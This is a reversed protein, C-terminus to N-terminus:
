MTKVLNMQNIIDAHSTTIYTPTHDPTTGDLELWCDLAWHDDKKNFPDLCLQANATPFHVLRVVYYAPLDDTIGTIGYLRNNFLDLARDSLSEKLRPNHYRLVITNDVIKPYVKRYTKSLEMLLLDDKSNIRNDANLIEQQSPYLWEIKQPAIWKGKENLYSYALDVKVEYPEPISDGKDFKTKEKISTEVWFLYLKGLHIITSVYPANIALEIKEWPTWEREPIWKRYYFQPPDQQTCGFFYYIDSEAHYYSGAIRLRALEAFQSVYKRYAAEASEKTIKQQLLEDELEKFIPTKNDRLDPEIYNEPYLFVKRNAEWVRYNKRWEWELKFGDLDKVEDLVVLKDSTSQELNTLIRHVYLQLSSIASVVRSTRFCGSMEVDLLFFAYIDNWDKFKLEQQRAIVYDCLADRKIVNIKDLYPELKERRVKEDDYRSSFAGMVIDRATTLKNFDADDALNQLSYGNVGLTQCVHLCEWLYELAETPVTSFALSNVLSEILSKDQQWLDALRLADDLSFKHIALYSNLVAQVTSEVEEKLTILKKFFTLAKLNDLTLHKLDAIGLTAPTTSLYAVTEERFKLNSFMLLVREMQRTLDLLTNLDAPNNPIDTTDNAFTANLATQIGASNIDTSVWQLTNELMKASLNFLRALQIRLAELRKSEKAKQIDHVIKGITELSMKFKVTNSEEGRLLFRLESVTFPSAKLWDRFKQLQRIQSLTTIVSNAPAFNLHLAEIFDEIDLKLAKALRAHRYLLSIRRRDLTTDGNADFPMEDKLLNFFLLLETESIGLGGLLLPTKSDIGQDNPNVTNLSYHHFSLTENFQGNPKIGFLGKLDFLREYLRNDAQRTTLKPFDKSVPLQHVLLCLEEVTLKLTNQLDILQALNLVADADISSGALDAEKLATLVMDLEPISWSTKRWLRVFRHIFDMRDYTLNKLIEPFNQLEDPDVMNAVQVNKLDPNFGLDLLESLQQRTIGAFGIFGRRDIGQTVNKYNNVPFDALSAPNGFRFRVELPKPTTIIEFEEESLNLRARWIKDDPQKLICYIDFLTLGFHSFYLRVEELPMNFPLGFSINGAKDGLTEYINGVVLKNLYNELVENVITLYPIETRTNECTLQLNWLDSRRNKLYLSHNPRKTDFIPKSVHQEIFHMLDVFYAAPSLISRCEECDCYDQSGFLDAFGDIARLDNILKPDLNSVAIDKFLGKVVDRITGFHHSVSLAYEQAKSYVFRAKGLPLDCTSVFDAETRAAISLASDYGKSLLMQQDSTGVGLNLVRQYAMLQKRVLPREPVPINNWNIGGDDAHFFDVLRLDVESNDQYFTNLLQLRVVIADKKQELELTKDNILDAVGLHRYTNAFATLDRMTMQQTERDRASVGSWDLSVPNAGDILRDNNRLLTSLTDLLSIQSLQPRTLRNLLVQSPFTKQINLVINEAYTDVTDGPTLPLGGDSILKQWDAKEWGIFDAVYKLDRTKLVAVFALNDGTLKALELTFQFDRKQEETFTGERVLEAFTTESVEDLLLNKEILKRTAQGDLGSLRAYEVTKARHIEAQFISNDQLPKDLGLVDVVKASSRDALRAELSVAEEALKPDRKVKSLIGDRIVASLDADRFERHDLRAVIAQVATSMAESVSGFSTLIERRLHENLRANIFDTQEATLDRLDTLCGFLNEPKVLFVPQEVPLVQMRQLTQDIEEKLIAPIINEHIASMLARRLVESSNAVLAPFDTPLGERFLGYFVEAPLDTQRTLRHALILFLIHEPNQGTEGAIFNVDHYKEDERLEAPALGQLLPTIEEILQEYESTGRFAEAGVVLDVTEVPQANFIIPSSALERGDTNYARVILDASQKEARQFQEPGYRIEYHGQRDTTTEGLQEESRLDKDFARVLSGVLPKGDPYCVLGRM